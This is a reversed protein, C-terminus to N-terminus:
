SDVFCTVQVYGTGLEMWYLLVWTARSKEKGVGGVGLNVLNQLVCLDLTLLNLKYHVYRTVLFIFVIIQGLSFKARLSFFLFFFSCSMNSCSSWLSFSYDIFLHIIVM